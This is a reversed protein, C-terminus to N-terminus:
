KIKDANKITKYIEEYIIRQENTKLQNKFAELQALTQCGKLTAVLRDEKVAPVEVYKEKKGKFAYDVTTGGTEVATCIGSLAVLEDEGIQGVSDKGISFLVEKETINYRGM